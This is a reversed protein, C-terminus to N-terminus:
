NGDDIDQLIKILELRRIRMFEAIDSIDFHRGVGDFFCLIEHERAKDLTTFEIGDSTLYVHTERMVKTITM